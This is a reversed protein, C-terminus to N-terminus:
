KKTCSLKHRTWDNRQCEKSCYTAVQCAICRKLIATEKGCNFCKTPLEAVPPKCVKKHDKWHKTQCNKGCYWTRGCGTCKKLKDPKSSCYGCKKEQEATSKTDVSLPSSAAKTPSTAFHSSRFSDTSTGSCRNPNKPNQKEIVHHAAHDQDCYLPYLMARTFYKELGHKNLIPVPSKSTPLTRRSFYVLINKLEFWLSEDCDLGVPNYGFPIVDLIFAVWETGHRRLLADDHFMYFVDLVPTRKQIEIARRHILLYCLPAADDTPGDSITFYNHESHQFLDSLFCKLKISVPLLPHSNGFNSLSQREERSFQMSSVIQLSDASLQMAPLSIFHSANSFFAPKENYVHKKARQVFVTAQNKSVQVTARDSDVPYPYAITFDYKGCVVQVTSLSPHKLSITTTKNSLLSLPSPAISLVTEMHDGNGVHSVVRGLSASAKESFHAEAQRFFFPEKHYSVVLDILYGSLFGVPTEVCKSVYRVITYFYEMDEQVYLSPFFFTLKLGGSPLRLIQASDIIHDDWSLNKFSFVRPSSPLSHIVVVFVPTVGQDQQHIPQMCLPDFEISFQSISEELPRKLCIPCNTDSMTLHFHLGHLLAQTQIHVLFPLLATTGYILSCLGNWFTYKSFEVDADLQSVFSLVTNIASETCLIEKFLLASDNEACFSSIHTCITRHLLVAFSEELARIKLPQSDVRQWFLFKVERSFLGTLIGSSSLHQLQAPMPHISTSDSYSTGDHGICRIGCLLPLLGPDFGFVDTLYEESTSYANKYLFTSTLLLDTMKLLPKIVLVLIPLPLYDILNSTFITDFTSPINQFTKLKSQLEECFDLCDSCNFLFTISQKKQSVQSMLIAASSSVWMSFQQVSNSLLPHREFGDDEVILAPGSLEDGMELKQIQSKSFFLGHHFCVFPTSAYHLTYTGDEREFLTSNVVKHDTPSPLNLLDEAYISLDVAYLTLDKDMADKTKQANKAYVSGILKFTPVTRTFKPVSFSKATTLWLKWMQRIKMLTSSDTFDVIQSIRHTSRQWSEMTDSFSVLTNLAERLMEEHSPLLEHCYWIAWMSAIWQKAAERQKWSPIKIALYLFLVNRALVGASNDNLVFRAGLFSQRSASHDFHKWITYFCSRIDGCGLSLITPERVDEFHVHELLDEAPTNGYAYYYIFQDYDVMRSPCYAKSVPM